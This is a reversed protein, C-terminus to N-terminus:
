RWAEQAGANEALFHSRVERPLAFVQDERRGPQEEVDAGFRKKLWAVVEQVASEPASAGATIVVNQDTHFWAPDLGHADDVLYAAVGERCALEALRRSNSSNQSGIVLVVDAQGCLDALAEQRNQSAYCIDEKAPGEIQPFKAQLRRVIRASEEVSLTTQTLWALKAGPRFHLREVDDLTEVLIIRHPAEGFVGNIEDHGAHGILLITYGHRAFRIAEAHVKAVLPCTADITRLGRRQAALRVAPSVGHASFVLVAGPPVQEVRDVFVAGRSAFEKVVRCNHVIEHFVYVPPGLERLVLHLCQVAM